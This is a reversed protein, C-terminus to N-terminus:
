PKLASIALLHVGEPRTYGMSGGTIATLLSPNDVSVATKDPPHACNQGRRERSPRNLCSQKTSLKIHKRQKTKYSQAFGNYLKASITGNTFSFPLCM